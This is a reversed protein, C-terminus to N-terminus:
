GLLLARSLQFVPAALALSDFRDLVGGHAPLLNSFDKVGVRRKIASFCLDGGVAGLSTSLGVLAMRWARAGPLLFGLLTSVTIAAGLGGLLGAVTKGPSLRPCLKRGGLLRGSLEAFSDTAATVTVVYAFAGQWGGVPLLLAGLALTLLSLTAAAATLRHRPAVKFVEASGALVILGLALAAVGRGVYATGWLANVLVVYVAYKLWDRRRREVPLGHKRHVRLILLAGVLFLCSV